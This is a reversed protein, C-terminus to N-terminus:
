SDRRRRISAATHSPHLFPSAPATSGYEKILLVLLVPLVPLFYKEWCLYSFPMVIFFSVVLLHLIAATDISNKRRGWLDRAIAYFVPLSLFFLIFFIIDVGIQDFAGSLLRHMLGVTEVGGALAPNAARVPFSWYLWSLVFSGALVKRDTYFTRWRSVIFPLPYLFLLVFYLTAFDPQYSFGSNMYLSKLENDPAVDGWFAFLVLCPILSASLWGLARLARAERTKAYRIIYLCFAAITVFVFYQRCLLGLANFLALAIPKDALVGRIALIVFLITLMDPFVFLSLGMMYPNLALWGTLAIALSRRVDLSVALQYFSVYTAFAILLSLIRLVPLEFSFLRGWGAYLVFTFPMSMEEYHLLTDLTFQNGFLRVTEVFHSEDSWAPARIGALALVLLYTLILFFPLSAASRAQKGPSIESIRMILFYHGVRFNGVLLCINHACEENM